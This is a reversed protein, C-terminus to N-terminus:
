IRLNENNISVTFLFTYNATNKCIQRKLVTLAAFNTRALQNDLTVDMIHLNKTLM